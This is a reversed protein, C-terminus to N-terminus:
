VSVSWVGTGAMNLSLLVTYNAFVDVSAGGTGTGDFTAVLQVTSALTSIGSYIHSSKGDSLGSELEIQALFTGIDSATAATTNLNVSNGATTGAPNTM